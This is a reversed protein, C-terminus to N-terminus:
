PKRAIVVMRRSDSSYEKTDWGGYIHQLELGAQTILTSLENPNYLRVFNPKDKRVGDRFVIRKNYLRGKLSDFSFRDIMLNGEKEEVYYPPLTKLLADRNSTDFILLGGTRLANAANILVQLNEDDEFYGFATFLLMVRDFENEHKFSRMDGLEYNVEVKRQLADHRVIELFGPMMDIGTMSHGLAALRNTHRGFGCALDLIKKPSDLGLLRVLASVEAETREATLEEGYFYLYDDVEFVAEFDFEQLQTSERHTDHQM